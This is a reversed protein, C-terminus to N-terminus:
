SLYVANRSHSDHMLGAGVCKQCQVHEEAHSLFRKATDNILFVDVHDVSQSFVCLGLVLFVLSEVLGCSGVDVLCVAGVWGLLVGYVM